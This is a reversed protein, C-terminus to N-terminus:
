AVRCGLDCVFWLVQYFAIM